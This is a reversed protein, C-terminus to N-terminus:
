AIVALVVADGVVRRAGLGHLLRTRRDQDAAAALAHQRDRGALGVDDADVRVQAGALDPEVRGLVRQALLGVALHPPDAVRGARADVVDLDLHAEEDRLTVSSRM